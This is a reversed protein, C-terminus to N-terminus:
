YNLEYLKELQRTQISPLTMRMMFNRLSQALTGEIQAMKGIQYSTNVVYRAKPLRLTQFIHFAEKVNDVTQLCRALVWSDEIAQCGGQGMNPTTAHAADGILCIRNAYWTRLPQFDHLDTRVIKDSPTAQIIDTIPDAFDHYFSLLDGILTDPQDQGASLTKKVAYWYVTKPTLPIFGFRYGGPGWAETATSRFVTGLDIEAIGRWSTEGSYRLQVTPFLYQRVVSHIGDAGLLVQGEVCMGDTFYAKIKYGDSELDHCKKGTMFRNSPIESLLIDQLKARHIATTLYGYKTQFKKQDGAAIGQGDQDVVQIATLVNGAAVVKDALGLRDLVQMANPAILIGAGVKKIQSVAEYIKIQFGVQQLAIATTLGAIGGGIICIDLNKPM